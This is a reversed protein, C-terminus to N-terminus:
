SNPGVLRRKLRALTSRLGGIAGTPAAAPARTGASLKKQIYEIYVRRVPDDPELLRLAQDSNEHLRQLLMLSLVSECQATYISHMMRDVREELRPEGSGPRDLGYAPLHVALIWCIEFFMAAQDQRITNAAHVRYRV